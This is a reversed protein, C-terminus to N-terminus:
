IEDSSTICLIASAYLHLWILLLYDKCLCYFWYVLVLLFHKYYSDYLNGYEIELIDRYCIQKIQLSVCQM